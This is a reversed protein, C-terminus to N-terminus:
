GEAPGAMAEEPLFVGDYIRYGANAFMAEWQENNDFAWDSIESKYYNAGSDPIEIQQAGISQSTSYGEYGATQYNDVDGTMGAGTLRENNVLTSSSYALTDVTSQAATGVHYPTNSKSTSTKSHEEKIKEYKVAINTLFRAQLACGTNQTACQAEFTSAAKRIAEISSTEFERSLHSPM